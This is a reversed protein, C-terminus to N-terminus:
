CMFKRACLVFYTYTLQHFHSWLSGSVQCQTTEPLQPETNALDTNPALRDLMVVASLSFRGHTSDNQGWPNLFDTKLDDNKAKKQASVEVLTGTYSRGTPLVPTLHLPHLSLWSEEATSLVIPQCLRGPIQAKLAKTIGASTSRVASITRSPKHL